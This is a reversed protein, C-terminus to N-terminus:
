GGARPGVEDLVRLAITGPEDSRTFPDGILRRKVQMPSGM